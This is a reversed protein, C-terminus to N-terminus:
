PYDEGGNPYRCRYLRNVTKIVGIMVGYKKFVLIAYNSCTPIFLCKNRIERPAIRQYVIISFIIISRLNLFVYVIMLLFFSTIVKIGTVYEHLIFALVFNTGVPILINLATGVVPIEPRIVENKAVVEDVIEYGDPVWLGNGVYHLKEGDSNYKINEQM